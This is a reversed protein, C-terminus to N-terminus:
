FFCPYNGRPRCPLYKVEGDNPDMQFRPRFKRGRRLCKCIDRGRDPASCGKPRGLFMSPICVAQLSKDATLCPQQMSQNQSPQQMCQNQNSPQQISRDGTTQIGPIADTGQAGSSYCPSKAGSGTPMSSSRASPGPVQSTGLIGMCGGAMKQLNFPKSGQDTVHSGASIPRPIKSTQNSTAQGQANSFGQGSGELVGYISTQGRERVLTNPIDQCSNQGVQGMQTTNPGQCPMQGGPGINRSGGPAHAGFSQGLTNNAFGAGQGPCINPPPQYLSGQLPQGSLGGPAVQSYAPDVPRFSQSHNYPTSNFPAGQVSSMQPGKSQSAAHGQPCMPGGCVNNQAVSAFAPGVSQNYRGPSGQGFVGQPLPSSRGANPVNCCPSGQANAFGQPSGQGFQARPGPSQPAPQLYPGQSGQISNNCIPNPCCPPGTCIIGGILGSTFQGQVTPPGRQTVSSGPIDRVSGFTAQTNSVFQSQAQPGGIFSRQTVAQDAANPCYVQPSRMNPSAISTSRMQSPIQTEDMSLWQIDEQPVPAQGCAWNACTPGANTGFNAQGPISRGALSENPNYVQSGATQPRGSMNCVNAPALSENMSMKQRKQPLPAMESGWIRNPDVGRSVNGGAFSTQPPACCDAANPVYMQPSQARQPMQGSENPNYMQPSRGGQAAVYGSQMQSPVDTRDMSLWQMEDEPVSVQRERGLRIGVQRPSCKVRDEGCVLYSSRDGSMELMSSAAPMNRSFEEYDNPEQFSVRRISTSLNKIRNALEDILYDKNTGEQISMKELYKPLEAKLTERFSGDCCSIGGLGIEQIKKVIADRTRRKELPGPTGNQPIDSIWNEVEMAILIEDAEDKIASLNPTPIRELSNIIENAYATTDMEALNHRNKIKNLYEDLKKLFKKKHVAARVNDEDQYRAYLIYYDAMNQKDLDDIAKDEESETVAREPLNNDINDMLQQKFSAPANTSKILDNMALTKQILQAKLAPKAAQLEPSQPVLMFLQELEEELVDQCYYQNGFINPDLKMKTVAKWVGNYVNLRATEQEAANKDSIPIQKVWQKIFEDYDENLKKVPISSGPQTPLSANMSQNPNYMTQQNPNVMPCTGCTGVGSSSVIGQGTQTLNDVQSPDFGSSFTNTGWPNNPSAPGFSRGSARSNNVSGQPCWASATGGGTQGQIGQPKSIGSNPCTDTEYCPPKKNISGGDKPTNSCTPKGCCPKSQNFGQVPAYPKPDCLGANPCFTKGVEVSTGGINQHKPNVLMPVPVSNIMQLLKDAHNITEQNDDGVLKNIWKFIQYKLAELQDQESDKGTHNLELYKQRDIIDGALDNVVVERFGSDQIQPIDLGDLWQNIQICLQNTYRDLNAQLDEETISGISFDTNNTSNMYNGTNNSVNLITYTQNFVCNNLMDQLDQLMINSVLHAQKNSMKGLDQLIIAMEDMIEDDHGCWICEISDMMFDVLENELEYLVDNTIRSNYENIFNLLHERVFDRMDEETLITKSRSAFPRRRVRGTQKTVIVNRMRKLLVDVLKRLYSKLGYSKNTEIPIEQLIDVIESKLDFDEKTWNKLLEKIRDEVSSLLDSRDIYRGIDDTKLNLQNVWDKLVFDLQRYESLRFPKIESRLIHKADGYCNKLKGVLDQYDGAYDCVTPCCNTVHKHHKDHKVKGRDCIHENRETTDFLKKILEDRITNKSVTDTIENILELLSIKLEEKTLKISEHSKTKRSVVTRNRSSHFDITSFVTQASKRPKLTTDSPYFNTQISKISTRIDLNEVYYFDGEVYDKGASSIPSEPVAVQFM